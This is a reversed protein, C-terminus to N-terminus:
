GVVKVYKVYGDQTDAANQLAEERTLTNDVEDERLYTGEFLFPWSSPVEGEVDVADFYSVAKGISLFENQIFTMEVEDEATFYLDRLYIEVNERKM